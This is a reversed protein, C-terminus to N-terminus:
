VLTPINELPLTLQSVAASTQCSLAQPDVPARGGKELSLRLVWGGDESCERGLRRPEMGGAGATDGSTEDMNPRRTRM